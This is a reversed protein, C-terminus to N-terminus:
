WPAVIGSNPSYDKCWLLTGWDSFRFLSAHGDVFCMNISGQIPQRLTAKGPKMPHRAVLIRDPISNPPDNGDGQILDLNPTPHTSADFWYDAWVADCFVPTLVPQAITSERGWYESANGGSCDRYLYGNFAYSGNTTGPYDPPFGGFWDWCTTATGKHLTSNGKSPATPCLRAGGAKAYYSAMTAMWLTQGYQNTYEIGSGDFDDQYMRYSTSLQKLNNICYASQAKSKARSLVPLLMGALIAIIAIVVLLEILTFGGPLLRPSCLSVQKKGTNAETEHLPRLIMEKM